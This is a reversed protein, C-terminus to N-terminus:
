LTWSVQHRRLLQVAAIGIASADFPSVRTFRARGIMVPAGKGGEGDSRSANLPLM